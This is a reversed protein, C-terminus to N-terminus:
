NFGVVFYSTTSINPAGLIEGSNSHYLIDMDYSGLKEMVMFLVALAQPSDLFDNNLTFLTKSDRFKLLKETLKDNESAELSALYHSFDVSAIVATDGGVLSSLVNGLLECERLTTKSKLIIPVIQVDPLYYKIYPVLAGISQDEGIVDEDAVALNKAILTDVVPLNPGMMGFPTEWCYRSSIINRSGIDKHNPGVLVIMKPDQEAVAKWFKSIEGSVLTHHPVIGGLLKYPIKYPSDEAESVGQYFLDRNYYILKHTQQRSVTGLVDERAFNQGDKILFVGALLFAPLLIGFLAKISMM